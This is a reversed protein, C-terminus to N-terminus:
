SQTAPQEGSAFYENFKETVFLKKSRGQKKSSVFEKEVLEKVHAYTSEGFAKVLESQLIGNNKSVYALLRLAGKSIEPGSALSSVKSAYEQKITLLYKGGIEEIELATNRNKYEEILRKIYSDVQGLSGIGAIKAIENISLARSSMFLAAEVLNEYKEGAEAM